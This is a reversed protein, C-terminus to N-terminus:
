REKTLTGESEIQPSKNDIKIKMWHLINRLTQQLKKKSECTNNLFINSLKSVNPFKLTIMGYNTELKIIIDDYKINCLTTM